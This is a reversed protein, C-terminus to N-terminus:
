PYCAEDGGDCYRLRFSQAVGPPVEPFYKFVFFSFFYLRGIFGLMYHIETRQTTHAPNRLSIGGREWNRKIYVGQHRKRRGLNRSTAIRIECVNVYSINQISSSGRQIEGERKKGREDKDGPEQERVDELLSVYM